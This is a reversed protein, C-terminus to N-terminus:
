LVYPSASMAQALRVVGGMEMWLWPSLTSALVCIATFGVGAPNCAARTIWGTITHYPVREGEQERIWLRSPSLRGSAAAVARCTTTRPTYHAICRARLWSHSAREKGTQTRGLVGLRARTPHSISASM